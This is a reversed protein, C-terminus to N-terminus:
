IQADSKELHLSLPQSSGAGTSRKIGATRPSSGISQDSGLPSSRKEGIPAQALRWGV